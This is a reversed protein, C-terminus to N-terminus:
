AHGVVEGVSVSDVAVGARAMARVQGAAANAGDESEFVVISRGKNGDLAVWVGSVFGPARSVGPVVTEDLEKRAQEFDSISVEVVVAYVTM